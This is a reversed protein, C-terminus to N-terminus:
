CRETVLDVYLSEIRALRRDFSFEAVVRDRGARGM